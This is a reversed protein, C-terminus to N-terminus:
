ARAEASAAAEGGLMAEGVRADPADPPLDAVVRGRAMVLLRDCLARLELLDASVVLVAKGQEAVRVIDDHIARAAAIDVGRTPQAFVFVSGDAARAIARAVVIKQQNGGSLSAVPADLDPPVVAARELRSAAALELAGADVLGFRTFRRLEGLVLNDRVTAALVLGEAHRDEHVVLAADCLVDGGDAAQLGALVRVLERQGNGEVGAIGVIEGARVELSVGRLARGLRLDRVTLRVEGHDRRRRELPPPPDQGMIDRTIERAVPADSRMTTRTSVLRGRRLVTVVDAHECVEDLRHTVVVIARGGDALRRLTSYLAAAEGPTLVATPEDLILVRAERVLARVIELRQRDGVGLTEAPADWLVSVGMDRAVAEARTRAADEDLRGFTRVPEAGLMVNQLATLVGVLAFHQQVMGIGRRIAERATHPELRAGDIRVEGADPQLVGAAMKLLTSKGAGNEGVVAHIQGRDFAISVRDVAHVPGYRKDLGDLALLASM